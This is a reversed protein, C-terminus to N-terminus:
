GPVGGLLTRAIACDAAIQAKLDELSAFKQEPRLFEELQVTLTKRYLDGSWDLLHVKVTPQTSNMPRYGINLVGVALPLLREQLFSSGTMECKIFVQVAYVGYRPLFKNSPLQINATPFGINTSPQQGKVVTGSLTYPRDLLVKVRQPNGEALARRIASSSIRDAGCTVNPVITVPIRFEAAIARLDNATGSRQKGFRFDEGVSITRAHLLQVLIKEVFDPPSLAALKKDFPLLVVQEIGWSRLQQVKEPLPTLLAHTQGTFFEQPHPNFTVVTPCIHEKALTQPSIVGLEQRRVQNLVPQIVRQHGRHLGDFKGLAVATPISTGATSHLLGCAIPSDLVKNM